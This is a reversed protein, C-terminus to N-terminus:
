KVVFKGYMGGAAHGPVHCVYWYTGPTSATFTITDSEGAPTGVEFETTAAGPFAVEEPPHAAYPPGDVLLVWSHPITAPTNLFYM